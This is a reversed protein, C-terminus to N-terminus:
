FEINFEYELIIQFMSLHTTALKRLFSRDNLFRSFNM